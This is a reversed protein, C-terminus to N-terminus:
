EIMKTIIGMPWDNRKADNDKPLVIDGEELARGEEKGSTVLSCHRSTNVSEGTGFRTQWTRFQKWEERFLDAEEFNGPPPPPASGTKLTLIMALSLILPTETDSSVRIPQRANFIAAVEAMLTTLVEHTLCSKNLKLLVCDLINIFISRCMAEIVESNVAMSCMSSFMVAWRKSNPFQEEQAALCLTGNDLSM